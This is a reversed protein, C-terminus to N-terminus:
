RYKIKLNMKEQMLPSRPDGIISRAGLARPGFEMRGQFWGIINGQEILGAIKEAKTNKSLQMFPYNKETLYQKIEKDPYGPGLFAGHMADTLKDTHRENELIQYWAHLEAGM